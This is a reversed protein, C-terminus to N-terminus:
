RPATPTPWSCVSASRSARGTRWSIAVCATARRAPVPGRAARGVGPVRGHHRGAPRRGRRQDAGDDREGADWPDDGERRFGAYRDVVARAAASDVNDIVADGELGPPSTLLAVTTESGAFVCSAWAPASLHDPDIPDRWREPEVMRLFGMLAAASATTHRSPRVLAARAVM